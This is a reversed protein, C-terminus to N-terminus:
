HVISATLACEFNAAPTASAALADLRCGLRRARLWPTSRAAVADLTRGRRGVRRSGAVRACDFGDASM